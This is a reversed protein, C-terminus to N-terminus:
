PQEEGGELLAILCSFGFVAAGILILLVVIALLIPAAICAFAFLLALGVLDAAVRSM